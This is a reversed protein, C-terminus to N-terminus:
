KRAAVDILRGLWETQAPSLGEFKVGATHTGDDGEAAWQVRAATVLPPTREDEVGDYVVFLSLRVQDGEHLMRECVLAAGSVSLDRTYATFSDSPAEVDAGLRVTARRSERHESESM